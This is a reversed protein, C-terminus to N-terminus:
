RHKLVLALTAVKAARSAWRAWAADPNVYRYADLVAPAIVLAGVVREDVGTATMGRTDREAPGAKFMAVTGYGLSTLVDFALAGKAFPAHEHRLDPHRTLLWESTVAQTWLGASSIAVEERPPLGPRHSVAFFPLPGLHVGTVRVDAGFIADCVLHGGEHVVLGTGAGAFFKLTDAFPHADPQAPAAADPGQASALVPLLVVLLIAGANCKACRSRFLPM